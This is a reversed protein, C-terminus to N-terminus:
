GLLTIVNGEPDRLHALCAGDWDNVFVRVAYLKM